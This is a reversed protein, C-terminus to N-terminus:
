SLYIRRVKCAAGPDGIKERYDQEGSAVYHVGSFEQKRESCEDISWLRLNKVNAPANASILSLEAFTPLDGWARAVEWECAELIDPQLMVHYSQDANLILGVYHEGPRQNDALFLTLGHKSAPVAVAPRIIPDTSVTNM